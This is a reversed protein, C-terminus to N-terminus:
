QSTQFLTLDEEQFLQNFFDYTHPMQVVVIDPYLLFRTALVAFSERLDDLYQTLPFLSSAQKTVWVEYDARIATEFAIDKSANYYTGRGTELTHLAEHVLTDFHYRPIGHESELRLLLTCKFITC